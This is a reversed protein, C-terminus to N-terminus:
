TTAACNECEIYPWITGDGQTGTSTSVQSSGCFPCPLYGDENPTLAPTVGTTHHQENNM